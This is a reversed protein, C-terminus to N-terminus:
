FFFFINFAIPTFEPSTKSNKQSQGLGRGRGGGIKTNYNFHIDDM